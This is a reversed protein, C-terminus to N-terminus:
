SEEEEDEWDVETSYGLLAEELPAPLGTVPVNKGAVELTLIEIDTLSSIEQTGNPVDPHGIWDAERKARFVITLEEGSYTGTTWFNKAKRKM